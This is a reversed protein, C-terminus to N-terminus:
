VLEKVDKIEIQEFSEHSGPHIANCLTVFAQNLMGFDNPQEEIRKRVLAVTKELGWGEVHSIMAEIVATLQAPTNAAYVDIEGYSAWVVVRM